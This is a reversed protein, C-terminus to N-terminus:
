GAGDGVLAYVFTGPVIGVLTGVIYVDLRVGLLAPVLNVLWFPFLPVLRLALLYSLPNASFRM